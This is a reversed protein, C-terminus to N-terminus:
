LNTIYDSIFIFSLWIMMVINGIVIAKINKTKTEPIATIDSERIALFGDAIM